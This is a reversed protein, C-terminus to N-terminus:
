KTRANKRCCRPCNVSRANKVTFPKTCRRCIAVADFNWVRKGMRAKVTYHGAGLLAVADVIILRYAEVVNAPPGWKAWAKATKSRAAFEYASITAKTYPRPRGLYDALLRGMAAQSLGFAERVATLDTLGRLFLVPSGSGKWVAELGRGRATPPVALLPREAAQPDKKANEAPPAPPAEPLRLLDGWTKAQADTDTKTM